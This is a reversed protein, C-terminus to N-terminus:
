RSTLGATPCLAPLQSSPEQGNIREAFGVMYDGKEALNLKDYFDGIAFNALGPVYAVKGDRFRPIDEL